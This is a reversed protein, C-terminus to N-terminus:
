YDDNIFKLSNSSIKEALAIRMVDHLTVVGRFHQDDLVPLYRAKFTDMMALCKDSTDSIDVFPM